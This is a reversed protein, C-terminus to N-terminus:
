GGHIELPEIHVVVDVIKWSGGLLHAKVAGGINHGQRVSLNEDVQVHIDMFLGLGSKRVRMKEIQVVGPVEAAHRRIADLTPDDVSADMIESLASRFLTVGNYAIVLCAALAAWDDAAAYGGFLSVVIGILVALSTLADSRHHWADVHLATSGLETSTNGVFRFLAEKVAVTAILVPLTFWAPPEHPVRIQHISEVAIYAAAALLALSALAAALSEAKGHGYPHVDDAPKASIRLGSWVILSGVIDTTSEIGDAVLAQSDGILGVATKVVALTLNVGVGVAVAGTGSSSASM